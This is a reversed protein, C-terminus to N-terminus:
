TEGFAKGNELFKNQVRHKCNQPTVFESVINQREGTFVNSNVWMHEVFSVNLQKESLISPNTSSRGCM